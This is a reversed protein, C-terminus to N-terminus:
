IYRYIMRASFKLSGALAGPQTNYTCVAPMRPRAAVLSIITERSRPRCGLHYGVRYKKKVENKKREAIKITRDQVSCPVLRPALAHPTKNASEDVPAGFGPPPLPPHFIRSFAHSRGDYYSWSCFLSNRIRMFM